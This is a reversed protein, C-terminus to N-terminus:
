FKYTLGTDYRIPEIHPYSTFKDQKGSIDFLNNIAFHLDFGYIDEAMLKTSVVALSTPLDLSPDAKTLDGRFSAHVNLNFKNYNVNVGAIGYKDYGGIPKNDADRNDVYSYGAYLYNKKDFNYKVNLEVGQHYTAAQNDFVYPFGSTDPGITNKVENKFLSTEILLHDLFLHNWVVEYGTITEPKLSENGNLM